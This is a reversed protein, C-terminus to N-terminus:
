AIVEDRGEKAADQEDNRRRDAERGEAIPRAVAREEQDERVSAQAQSKESWTAADPTEGKMGDPRRKQFSVLLLRARVGRAHRGM